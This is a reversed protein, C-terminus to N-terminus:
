ILYRGARGDRDCRSSNPWGPFNVLYRSRSTRFTHKVAQSRNIFSMNVLRKRSINKM